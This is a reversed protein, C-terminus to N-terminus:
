LTQHKHLNELEKKFNLYDNAKEYEEKEEAGSIIDDLLTVVATVGHTFVIRMWYDRDFHHPM